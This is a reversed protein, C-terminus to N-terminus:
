PFFGTHLQNAKREFEPQLRYLKATCKQQIQRWLNSLAATRLRHGASWKYDAQWRGQPRRAIGLM